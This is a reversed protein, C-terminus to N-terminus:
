VRQSREEGYIMLLVSSGCWWWCCCCCCFRGRSSSSLPLLLLLLVASVAEARSEGAAAGSTCCCCCGCCCCGVVVALSIGVAVAVRVVVVAGREAGTIGAAGGGRLLARRELRAGLLVLGVLLPPAGALLGSLAGLLGALLGQQLLGLLPLPGLVFFGRPPRRQDLLLVLALLSPGRCAPALVAAAPRFALCRQELSEDGEDLSPLCDGQLLQARGEAEAGGIGDVPNSTQFLFPPERADHVLAAREDV